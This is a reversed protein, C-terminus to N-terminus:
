ADTWFYHWTGDSGISIRHVLLVGESGRRALDAFRVCRWPALRQAELPQREPVVPFFPWLYTTIGGLVQVAYAQTLVAGLIRLMERGEGDFSRQKLYAIPNLDQPQKRMFLPPVESWQIPLLLDEIDGGEVSQLIRARLRTVARPLADWELSPSSLGDKLAPKKTTTKTM